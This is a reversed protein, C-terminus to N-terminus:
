TTGLEGRLSEIESETLPLDLRAQMREVDRDCGREFHYRGARDPLFVQSAEFEIALDEM